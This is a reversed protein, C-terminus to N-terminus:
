MKVFRVIEVNENSRFIVFYVGPNLHSVDLSETANKMTFQRVVSGSTTVIRVNGSSFDKFSIQLTENAPNPYINLLSSKSPNSIGATFDILVYGSDADGWSDHIVYGISDMGSFGTNTFTYEINQNVITTTGSIPQQFIQVLEISDDDADFDNALVEVTLPNQLVSWITDNVAVPFSNTVVDVASGAVDSFATDVGVGFEDYVELQGFSFYDTTQVFFQNANPDKKAATAWTMLFLSRSGTVIDYTEIGNGFDGMLNGSFYDFGTCQTFSTTDSVFSSDALQITTVGAYWIDYNPTYRQHTLILQQNDYFLKGAGSSLTDLFIAGSYSVIPELNLVHVMGTDTLSTSAIYAIDNNIAIGNCSTYAITDTHLVNQLNNKDIVRFFESTAPFGRTVVLKNGGIEFNQIGTIELTSDIPAGTGDLIDYKLIRDGGQPHGFGRGVHVYVFHGSALIHNSFDGPISDILQTTSDQVDYAYIKVHNGPTGYSGGTTFVIKKTENQSFIGLSILVAFSFLM